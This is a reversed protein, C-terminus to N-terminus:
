SNLASQINRETKEAEKKDLIAKLEPYLDDFDALDQTAKDIKTQVGSSLHFGIDNYYDRERKYDFEDYAMSLISQLEERERPLRIEDLNNAENLALKILNTSELGFSQVKYHGRILSFAGKPLNYPKIWREGSIFQYGKAIVDNEKTVVIYEANYEVMKAVHITVTINNNSKTIISM